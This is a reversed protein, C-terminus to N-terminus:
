KLLTLSGEGKVVKIEEETLGYLRYVIQNFDHEHYEKITTKNALNDIEAGIERELWKLFGKIEGNKRKNMEIMQEALYALLDHAIDSKEPLCTEVDGIIDDYKSSAYLFKLKEVAEKRKKEPIVSSIRYIPLTKLYVTRFRFRGKRDKDGLVPTLSKIYYFLLQSNLLSLLYYDETPIEFLTAEPYFGDKDISFRPSMGIDPYVIKPKEFDKYYDVTDQIEYWQYSGPKRGDIVGPMLRNKYEGLYKKVALYKEINIGRRTFILYREEFNIVYM